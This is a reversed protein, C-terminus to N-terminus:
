VHEINGWGEMVRYGSRPEAKRSVTELKGTVSGMKDQVTVECCAMLM